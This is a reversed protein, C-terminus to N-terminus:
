LILRSHTSAITDSPKLQFPTALLADIRTEVAQAIEDDDLLVKLRHRAIGAKRLVEDTDPQKGFNTLFQTVAEQTYLNGYSLAKKSAKGEKSKAM